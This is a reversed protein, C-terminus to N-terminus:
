DLFYFLIASTPCDALYGKVSPLSTLHDHYSGLSVSKLKLQQYKVHWYMTTMTSIDLNQTGNVQWWKVCCGTFNLWNRTTTQLRMVMNWIPNHSQVVDVFADKNQGETNWCVFHQPSFFGQCKIGYRLTLAGAAYLYCWKMGVMM